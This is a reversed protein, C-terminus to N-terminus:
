GYVLLEGCTWGLPIYAKENGKIGYEGSKTMVCMGLWLLLLVSITLIVWLLSVQWIGRTFIHMVGSGFALLQSSSILTGESSTM